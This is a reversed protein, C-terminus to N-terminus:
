TYTLANRDDEATDEEGPLIFLPGVCESECRVAILLVEMMWFAISTAVTVPVFGGFFDQCHENNEGAPEFIGWTFMDVWLDRRATSSPPERINRTRPDISRFLVMYGNEVQVFSALVLTKLLVNQGVREMTRYFVVNHEDVQQVFHMTARISSSYLRNVGRETSLVRWTNAALNEARHHRFTKELAFKVLDGDIRRRDRWGFMQGGTSVYNTSEKFAMIDSYALRVIDLCEDLSMPTMQLLRTAGRESAGGCRQDYVTLLQTPDDAPTRLSEPMEDLLSAYEAAAQAREQAEEEMLIRMRTHAKSQEMTAARLMENERRLQEISVALEAFSQRLEEEPSTHAAVIAAISLKSVPRREPERRARTEAVHNCKEELQQVVERLENLTDIKRYYSRKVLMRQKARKEDTTLPAARRRSKPKAKTAPEPPSMHTELMKVDDSSSPSKDEVSSRATVDPSPWEFAPQKADVARPSGSLLDKMSMSATKSMMGERAESMQQLGQLATLEMASSGGLLETIKM